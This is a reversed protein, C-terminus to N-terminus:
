AKVREKVTFGLAILVSLVVLLSAGITVSNGVEYSRPAFHFRITHQGPPIELARLVYNVRAIPVEQNDITATWGEPYYVESFVALSPGPVDAEYVMENPEASTLRITGAADYTDALEFASQDVVAATSLDTEEIAAIEQDPNDVKKVNEVLWVSGLAQPNEIVANPTPGAMIFRTNMMNLAETDTFGKQGSQLDSVLTNIEGSLYRDILDQYRKLKAAHYGGISSHFYSTTGNQFPSVQLNLVRDHPESQQNIYQDAETATIVSRAPNRVFNDSNFHRKDVLGLDLVILLGLVGNLIPYTVREKLYFYLLAFAAVVFFLSRFADGRMLSERDSQLAEVFWEPQGAEQPSSFDAVGAFVIVLLLLGAVGGGAYLLKKPLDPNRPHAVVKELALFGLLPMALMAMVLTMEVTRFKNYLPLYDFLLYNFSPFFKGWSLIISFVTIAILWYRHQGEVIFGGLVFLFVIIAGVYVPGGTFPKGGWYTPANTTYQQVQPRPVNNTRMVEGLESDTGIDLTSAGGFFNPILLTLTELKRNSWQFAYDRDATTAAAPATTEPSSLESPGRTSYTSYEYTTWLRGLNAGVALLVAATLVGVTKFFWPLRDERAAYVLASVGYFIVMFLLYYVIQPHNSDIELAMALATLAFGWLYNRTFATHVGALVLPMYAMAEVKWNHGAGLSIVAFTSLGYALAGAIALYPRVRFVLLLIYFCLMSKFFISSPRPLWLSFVNQVQNLVADGGYNLGVLYTPMGGFLAPNWLAVDDHSENYDKTVKTIGQGQVIDEQRLTKNELFTPGFFFLTILLFTFLAVLHPLVHQRFNISPM